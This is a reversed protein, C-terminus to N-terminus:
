EFTLVSVVTGFRFFQANSVVKIWKVGAKVSLTVLPQYETANRVNEILKNLIKM